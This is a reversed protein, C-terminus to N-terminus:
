IELKVMVRKVIMHKLLVLVKSVFASFVVLKSDQTIWKKELVLINWLSLTKTMLFEKTIHPDKKNYKQEM